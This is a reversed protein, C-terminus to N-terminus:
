PTAPHAPPVDGLRFPLEGVVERGRNLFIRVRACWRIKVILGQYSLPSPPLQVSFRGGPRVAAPGDGDPPRREFFHVAMDEDGKGETQWLVSVELAKIEAPKVGSLTYDGTLTEGPRYSRGNGTFRIEVTPPTM